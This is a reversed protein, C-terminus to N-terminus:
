WLDGDQFTITYKNNEPNCEYPAIFLDQNFRIIETYPAVPNYWHQRRYRNWLTEIYEAQNRTILAAHGMRLLDHVFGRAEHNAGFSCQALTILKLRELESMPFRVLRGQMKQEAEDLDRERLKTRLWEYAERADM